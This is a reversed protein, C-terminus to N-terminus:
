TGGPHHVDIDTLLRIGFVHSIVYWLVIVFGVGRIWSGRHGVCYSSVLDLSVNDFVRKTFAVRIDCSRFRACVFSALRYVKYWEGYRPHIM